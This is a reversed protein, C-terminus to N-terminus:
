CVVRFRESIYVSSSCVVACVICALIIAKLLSIYLEEGGCLVHMGEFILEGLLTGSGGRRRRRGV